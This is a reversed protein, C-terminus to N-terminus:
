HTQKNTPWLEEMQYEYRSLQLTRKMTDLYNALDKGGVFFLCYLYEQGESLIGRSVGSVEISVEFIEPWDISEGLLFFGISDLFLNKRFKKRFSSIYYDM